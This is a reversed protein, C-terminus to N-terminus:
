VSGEEEGGKKKKSLLGLTLMGMPAVPAYVHQPRLTPPPIVVPIKPQAPQGPQQTQGPGQQQQQGHHQQSLPSQHRSRLLPADDEASYPLQGNDGGQAAVISMRHHHSSAGNSM